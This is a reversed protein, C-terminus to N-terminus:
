RSRLLEQYNWAKCDASAKNNSATFGMLSFKEVLLVMEEGTKRGGTGTPIFVDGYIKIEVNKGNVLLQTLSADSFDFMRRIIYTRGKVVESVFKFDIPRGNDISMTGHRIDDDIESTSAPSFLADNERMMPMYGYCNEPNHYFVLLTEDNDNSTWAVSTGDDYEKYGYDGYYSDGIASTSFIFYFSFVLFLSKM